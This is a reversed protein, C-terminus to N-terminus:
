STRVQIKKPKSEESKKLHMKLVGGNLEAKIGNADVSPPVRFSREFFLPRFSAQEPVPVPQRAQITLEPADLRVDLASTEVGPLDAVLLIEDDNEYIDVSPEIRLHTDSQTIQQTQSKEKEISTEKTM